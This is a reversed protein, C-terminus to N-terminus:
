AEPPWENQVNGLVECDCYGGYEELWPLVDSESLSQAALFQRTFRLSHDCGGGLAVDLHDFLACLDRRSIPMRAEALQRERKKVDRILSKRREQESKSTM